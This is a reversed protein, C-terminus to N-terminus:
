LLGEKDGTDPYVNWDSCLFEAKIYRFDQWKIFYASKM